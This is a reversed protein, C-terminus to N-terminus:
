QAGHDVLLKKIAESRTRKLPTDGNQLKANPNAGQELLWKVLNVDKSDIAVFLLTHGFDRTKFDVGVKCHDLLIKITEINNTNPHYCAHYFIEQLQFKPIENALPSQLLRKLIELEGDQAAMQICWYYEYPYFDAPMKEILVNFAEQRNWRVSWGLPTLGVPENPWVYPTGNALLERIRQANGDISARALEKYTKFAPDDEDPLLKGDLRTGVDDDGNPLYIKLIFKEEPTYIFYVTGEKAKKLKIWTTDLKDTRAMGSSNQYEIQFAQPLTWPFMRDNYVSAHQYPNLAGCSMLEKGDSLFRTVLVENTSTSCFCYEGDKLQLGAFVPFHVAFVFIGLFFIKTKV